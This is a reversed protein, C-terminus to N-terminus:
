GGLKTYIIYRNHSVDKKDCQCTSSDVGLVLLQQIYLTHPIIVFRYLLYNICEFFSPIVVLLLLFLNAPPM